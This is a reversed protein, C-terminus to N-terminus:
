GFLRPLMPLLSFGHVPAQMINGPKDGDPRNSVDLVPDDSDAAPPQFYNVKILALRDGKLMGFANQQVTSKVVDTLCQGNTLQQATITVGRRNAIRVAYQLTSKAFIAWATDLLVLVIILMPLLILTFELVEAGKRRDTTQM